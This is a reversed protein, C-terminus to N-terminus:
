EMIGMTQLGQRLVIDKVAKFVVVINNTDTACTFHSYILKKPNENMGLFQKNIFTTARNYDMGGDYEPFCVKLDVTKIKDSFIDRKNLFIIIPTSQFWPSNCINKFLLLSEHMRNQTVDEALTMDYESLSVCFIVCTVDEFCSAWKRRESRQGGVDVIRFTHRDVTFQTEKAGTTRSRARLIDQPTPSYDASSIRSLNDLFYAASDAIHFDPNPHACIEKIAPEAWVQMAGRAFEETIPGAFYDEQLLRSAVATVNPDVYKTNLLTAGNILAKIATVINSYIISKNAAKEEPTFGNLHIIKMQKAITSKGSEGAGLLLMKIHSRLEREDLKLQRDIQKSIEHGEGIQRTCCAMETLM